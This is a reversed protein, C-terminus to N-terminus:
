TAGQLRAMHGPFRKVPPLSGWALGEASKENDLFLYFLVVFCHGRQTMDMRVETPSLHYLSFPLIQITPFGPVLVLAWRVVWSHHLSPEM